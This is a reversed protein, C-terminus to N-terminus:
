LERWALPVGLRPADSGLRLGILACRIAGCQEKSTPLSAGRSAVPGRHRPQSGPWGSVSAGDIPVQAGFANEVVRIWGIQRDILGCSISSVWRSAQSSSCRPGSTPKMRSSSVSIPPRARLCREGPYDPATIEALDRADSPEAQSPDDAPDLEFM